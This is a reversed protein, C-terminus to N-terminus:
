AVISHASRKGSPVINMVVMSELVSTSKDTWCGSRHITKGDKLQSAHEHVTKEVTRVFGLWYPGAIKTWNGGTQWCVGVLQIHRVVCICVGSITTIAQDNSHLSTPKRWPAGDLCVDRNGFWGKADSHLTKFANSVWMLSSQPQEFIARAGAATAIKFRRCAIM